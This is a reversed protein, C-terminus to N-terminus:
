YGGDDLGDPLTTDWEARERLEERWADPDSQLRAFDADLGDFFLKRRLDEVAEDIVEQLTRGVALERLKALTSDSVPVSTM